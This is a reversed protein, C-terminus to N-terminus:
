SPLTISDGGSVSRERKKKLTQIPRQRDVAHGGFVGAAVLALGGGM